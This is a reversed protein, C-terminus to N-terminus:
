APWGQKNQINLTDTMRTSRKHHDPTHLLNNHMMRNSSKCIETSAQNIANIRDSRSSGNKRNILYNASM